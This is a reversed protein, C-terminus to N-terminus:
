TVTQVRERVIRPFGKVGHHALSINRSFKTDFLPDVVIDCFPCTVV